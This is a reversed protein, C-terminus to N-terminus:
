TELIEINHCAKMLAAKLKYLDTKIGKVDEVVRKGDQTYVFDAVYKVKRGSAYRLEAGNISFTFPVQLQLMAIHGSNNLASLVRYRNGERASDFKIGHIVTPKNRYKRAM